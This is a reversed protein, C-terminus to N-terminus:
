YSSVHGLMHLGFFDCFPMVIDLPLTMAAVNFLGCVFVHGLLHQGFLGPFLALFPKCISPM